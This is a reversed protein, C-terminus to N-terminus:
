LGCRNSVQQMVLRMQNRIQMVDFLKRIDDASAPTESGAAAAQGLMCSSTLCLLIVFLVARVRM